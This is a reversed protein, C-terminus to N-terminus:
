LGARPQVYRFLSKISGFREQLLFDDGQRLELTAFSLHQAHSGFTLFCLVTETEEAHGVLLDIPQISILLDTRINRYGRREVAADDEAIQGFAFDHLHRMM